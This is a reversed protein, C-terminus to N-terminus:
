WDKRPRAENVSRDTRRRVKLEQSLARLRELTTDIESANGGEGGGGKESDQDGEGEGEGEEEGEGEGEGEGANEGEGEGKGEGEEEGKGDEGEGGEDGTGTEGDAGAKGEFEKNTEDEKGGGKKEGEEEGGGSSQGNGEGEGSGKGKGKGQGNGECEGECEGEGEGQGQGQSKKKGPGQAQIKQLRIDRLKKILETVSEHNAQAGGHSENIVLTEQYHEVSNELLRITRDLYPITVEFKKMTKTKKKAKAQEYNEARQREAAKTREYIANALNYHARERVADNTSALAAGFSEIAQEMMGGDFPRNEATAAKFAAVGRAMHLRDMEASDDMSTRSIAATFNSVADRYEGEDYFQWPDGEKPQPPPEPKAAEGAKGAAGAKEAPAEKEVQAPPLLEEEQQARADQPASCLLALLAALAPAAAPLAARHRRVIGTLFAATLSLIGATLPWRYRDVATETVKTKMESRQLQSLIRDIRADNVGRGDLSVYLGGTTEAIATLSAKELKTRVPKGDRDRYYGGPANADPILEGATTGVGVCVVAIQDERALKAEALTEGELEEGDSFLVMAQQGSLDAGAFTKRALNIARALNSGGRPMLDTDLEQIADLVADTDPTLPAYMFATGAFPMLGIRYGRLRKVLDEAALQARELRSPLVDDAKMSRSMDIAIILSKGTGPSETKVVGYQPKALAGTFLVFALLEFALVVWGRGRGASVVLSDLLRGAALRSTARRARADGLVKLVILVPVLLLLWFAHPNAFTLSM